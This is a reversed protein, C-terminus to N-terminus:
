VCDIGAPKTSGNLHRYLNLISPQLTHSKTGSMLAILSRRRAQIDTTFGASELQWAVWEAWQRDKATYSIFFDKM